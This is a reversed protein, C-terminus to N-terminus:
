LGVMEARALVRCRTWLAMHAANHLNREVYRRAAYPGWARWNRAATAAAQAIPHITTTKM